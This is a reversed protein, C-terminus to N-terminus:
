YSNTWPSSSALLVGQSASVSKINLRGSLNPPKQFAVQQDLPTVQTTSFIPSEAGCGVKGTFLSRAAAALRTNFTSVAPAGPDAWHDTPTPRLAPGLSPPLLLAQNPVRAYNQASAHPTPGRLVNVRQFGAPTLSPCPLPSRVTEVPLWNPLVPFYKAVKHIM